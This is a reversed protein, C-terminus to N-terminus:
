VCWVTLAGLSTLTTTLAALTTATTALAAIVAGFAVTIVHYACRHVVRRLGQIWGNLLGLRLSCPLTGCWPAAFLLALWAFAVTTVTIATITAFAIFAAFTAFAGAVAMATSFLWGSAFGDKFAM